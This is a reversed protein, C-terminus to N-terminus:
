SKKAAKKISKRVVVVAGTAGPVAGEVLLANDEPRVQVVRLNQTTVQLHGTHGPMRKNKLIRAPWTRMGISGVRRHMTHGHAAPQGAMDHRKMVGQFGQGKTTGSVDVYAVDNFLEVTVAQGEKLEEGAAIEFERLVRSPALGAKKFRGAAAKSIRREQQAGFGLQVADYGDRATSKRQVVVCPGAEIVTVAVHRGKADYVQTMGLKRGIIGQM